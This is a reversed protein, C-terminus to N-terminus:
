RAVEWRQCRACTPAQQTRLRVETVLKYRIGCVAKRQAGSGAHWVGRAAFPRGSPRWRIVFPTM